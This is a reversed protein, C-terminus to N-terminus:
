LLRSRLFPRIAGGGRVSKAYFLRIPISFSRFFVFVFTSAENAASARESYRNQSRWSYVGLVPNPFGSGQMKVRQEFLWIRHFVSVNKTAMEDLGWKRWTAQIVCYPCQVGTYCVCSHAICVPFCAGVCAFTRIVGHPYKSFIIIMCVTSRLKMINTRNLKNQVFIGKGLWSCLYCSPHNFNFNFTPSLPLSSTWSLWGGRLCSLAWEYRGPASLWWGPNVYIRSLPEPALQRLSLFSLWVAVVHWGVNAM